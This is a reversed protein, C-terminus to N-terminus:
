RTVSAGKEAMQREYVLDRQVTAARQVPKALWQDVKESSRMITELEIYPTRSDNDGLHYPSAAVRDIVAKLDAVSYGDALRARIKAVRKVSAKPKRDPHVKPWLTSAWYAFVEAAGHDNPKETKSTGIPSEPDVGPPTMGWPDSDVPQDSSVSVHPDPPKDGSRHKNETKTTTSTSPVNEQVTGSVTTRDRVKKRWQEKRVADLSRSERYFQHNLVVWGGTIKEVRRGDGGDKSDPEPGELEILAQSCENLSVNARRALGGVSAHVIGEKSAMALMTIWVIRTTVSASWISSDLICSYLKTYSM